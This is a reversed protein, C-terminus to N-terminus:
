RMAVYIADNTGNNGHVGDPIDFGTATITIDTTANWTDVVGWVEGTSSANDLQQQWEESGDTSKFWVVKPRFGVNTSLVSGGAGNCVGVSTKGAISRVAIATMIDLGDGNGAFEYYSTSCTTFTTATYTMQRTASTNIANKLRWAGQGDAGLSTSEFVKGNYYWNGSGSAADGNADDVKWFIIEPEGNMGHEVTDSAGVPVWQIIQVGADEALYVTSDPGSANTITHEGDKRIGYAANLAGSTNSLTSTGCTFGSGTFAMVNSDAASGNSDKLSTNYGVPLNAGGASCNFFLSLSKSSGGSTFAQSSIHVMALEADSTISQSVGDGTWEGIYNITDGTAPTLPNGAPVWTSLASRKWTDTAIAVYLYDTDFRLEGATGPATPGVPAAALSAGGYGPVWEGAGVDWILVQGATPAATSTDVDSLADISSISLDAGAKTLAGGEVVYIGNEDTAYCVEGEKLDAAVIATDLNAKTGRAIRVPVRNAPTAM